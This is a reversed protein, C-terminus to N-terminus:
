TRSVKGRVGAETVRVEGRAGVQELTSMVSLPVERLDQIGLYNFSANLLRELKVKNGVLSQVHSVLAQRAAM